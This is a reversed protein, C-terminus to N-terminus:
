PTDQTVASRPPTESMFASATLVNKENYMTTKRHKLRRQQLKYVNGFTNVATNHNHRVSTKWCAYNNTFLKQKLEGMNGGASRLSVKCAERFIKKPLISKHKGGRSITVVVTLECM